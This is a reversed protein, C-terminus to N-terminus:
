LAANPMEAANGLPFMADCKPSEDMCVLPINEDYPLAYVELIDEM